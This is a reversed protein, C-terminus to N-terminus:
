SEATSAGNNFLDSLEGVGFIESVYGAAWCVKSCCQAGRNVDVQGVETLFWAKEFGDSVLVVHLNTANVALVGLCGIM